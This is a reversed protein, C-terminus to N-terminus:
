AWVPPGLLVVFVALAKGSPRRAFRSHLAWIGCGGRCYRLTPFMAGTRSPSTVKGFTQASSLRHLDVHLNRSSSVCLARYHYEGVHWAGRGSDDDHALQFLM